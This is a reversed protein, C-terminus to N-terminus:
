GFDLCFCVKGSDVQRNFDAVYKEADDETTAAQVSPVAAYATSSLLILALPLRM